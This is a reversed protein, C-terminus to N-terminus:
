KECSARAEEYRATVTLIVARTLWAQADTPAKALALDLHKLASDFDHLSQEITARLVLVPAPADETWWPQLVAQAQGLYHPDSNARALQIDVQALRLAAPLYDPKQALMKRLELVERTPGAQGKAIPLTEVVQSPDTPTRKASADKPSRGFFVLSLAISGGIAGLTILRRREM